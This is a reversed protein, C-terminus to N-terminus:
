SAHGSKNVSKCLTVEHKNQFSLWPPTKGDSKDIQQYSISTFNKKCPATSQIWCFQCAPLSCFGTEIKGTGGRIQSLCHCVVSVCTWGYGFHECVYHVYVSHHWVHTKPSQNSAKIKDTNPALFSRLTTVALHISLSYSHFVKMESLLVPPSQHATLVIFWVALCM